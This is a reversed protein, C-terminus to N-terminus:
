LGNARISALEGAIQTEEGRMLEPTGQRLGPVIFAPAADFPAPTLAGALDDIGAPCPLARSERWGQRSGIMGSLLIRDEGDRLWDGTLEHVVTAFAGDTVSLIGRPAQRRERVVGDAGLRFARFSSTGWDIGIMGPVDVEDEPRDNGLSSAHPDTWTRAACRRFRKEKAAPVAGPQSAWPM